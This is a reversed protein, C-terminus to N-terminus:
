VNNNDMDVVYVNGKKDLDIGHPVGFQGDDKGKTGWKLVYNGEDTFKQIRINNYDVVYVEKMHAPSGSSDARPLSHSHRNDTGVDTDPYVDRAKGQPNQTNEPHIMEKVSDTLEDEFPDLGSLSEGFGTPLDSYPSSFSLSPMQLDSIQGYALNDELTLQVPISVYPYTSFIGLDDISTVVTIAVAVTTTTTVVGLIFIVFFQTNV